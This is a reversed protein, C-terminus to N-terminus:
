AFRGSRLDDWPVAKIFEAIHRGEIVIKDRPTFWKFLICRGTEGKSAVGRNHVIDHRIRRLDGFADVQIHEVPRNSAKALEPRIYHEWEAYVFVAWQQGLQIAVPGGHALLHPLESAKFRAYKDDSLNPDRIGLYISPDPNEAARPAASFFEDIRRIGSLAFTYAGAAQSLLGDLERLITEVSTEPMADNGETKLNDDVDVLSAVEELTLRDREVRSAHSALSAGARPATSPRCRRRTLV